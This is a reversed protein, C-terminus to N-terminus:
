PLGLRQTVIWRIRAAVQAQPQTADVVVVRRPERRALRLFGQRVRRHFTRTKREMRDRGRRLRAFGQATPVDLIITLSPLVGGIACRGWRDLWPVNLGGGDGQYVVTSDHFRDCVVVRGRRLAPAIRERVLAVRGGIFLAAETLPPMSERTHLLVRRLARGLVTSGPDRLFIAPRGRHNLWAVLRRAQGSKGSGEPGELTIFMRRRSM